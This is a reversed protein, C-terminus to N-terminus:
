AYYGKKPSQGEVHPFAISKRGALFNGAAIGGIGSANFLPPMAANNLHGCPFAYSKRVDVPLARLFDIIEKLEIKM